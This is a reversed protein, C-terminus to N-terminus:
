NCVAGLLLVACTEMIVCAPYNLLQMICLCCYQVQQWTVCSPYHIFHMFKCLLLLVTCTELRVCTPKVCPVCWLLMCKGGAM